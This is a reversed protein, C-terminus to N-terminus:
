ASEYLAMFVPEGTSKELRKGIRESERLSWYIITEPSSVALLDNLEELILSDKAILIQNKRKMKTEIEKKLEM